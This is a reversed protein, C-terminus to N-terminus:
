IATVFRPASVLRSGLRDAQGNSPGDSFAFSKLPFGFLAGLGQGADKSLQRPQRGAGGRILKVLAAHFRRSSALPVGHLDNPHTLPQFAGLSRGLYLRFHARHRSERSGRAAGLDGRAFAM